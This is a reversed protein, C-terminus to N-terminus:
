HFQVQRSDTDETKDLKDECAHSSLLGTNATQMVERYDKRLLPALISHMVLRMCTFDANTILDQGFNLDQLGKVLGKIPFTM